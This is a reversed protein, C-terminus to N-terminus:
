PLWFITIRTAIPETISLSSSEAGEVLGAVSEILIEIDNDQRILTIKVGFEIPMMPITEIEQIAGEQIQAWLGEGELAAVREREVRDQLLLVPDDRLSGLSQLTPSSIMGIALQSSPLSMMPSFWQHGPFGVFAQRLSPGNMSRVHLGTYRSPSRPILTYSQSRKRDRMSGDYLRLPREM